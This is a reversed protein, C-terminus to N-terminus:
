RGPREPREVREPRQPREPREIHQMREPREARNFKDIRAERTVDSKSDAKEVKQQSAREQRLDQLAHRAESILPGLKFGLEKAIRGWGMGENRLDGVRALAEAMTPFTEPDTKTLQEALALRITIEGWGQKANRLDQVVNSSVQFRQALNETLAQQGKKAAQQEVEQQTTQLRAEESVPQATVSVPLWLSLLATGFVYRANRVRM